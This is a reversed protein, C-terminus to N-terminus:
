WGYGNGYGDGNGYGYGDGDSYDDSNTAKSDEFNITRKVYIKEM